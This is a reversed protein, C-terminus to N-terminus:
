DARVGASRRKRVREGVILFGLTAPIVLLMWGSGLCFHYPELPVVLADPLAKRLLVRQSDSDASLGVFRLSKLGNMVDLHEFEGLLTLGELNRLSRLPSLDILNDPEILELTELDPHATLLAAFQQQTINKPLGLWRLKKMGVLSSLDSSARSGTLVLKRLEPFDALHTLDLPEDMRTLQLEELGAPAARLASLDTMGKASWLALSRLETIGVPLEGATEPNWGVLALRRLRPLRPLVDFSGSDGVSMILTEVQQMSSAALRADPSGELLLIWRPHFHPLIQALSAQSGILLGVNPNVAALRELAPIQAEDLSESVAVTRLEELDRESAGALWQQASSSDLAVSVVRGSLSMSWQNTTLHLVGGDSSRYLLCTADGDGSLLDEDNLFLGRPDDGVRPPTKVAPLPSWQWVEHGEIRVAQPGQPAGCGVMMVAGALSTLLASRKIAKM